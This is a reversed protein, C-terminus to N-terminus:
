LIQLKRFIGFRSIGQGSFVIQLEGSWQQTGCNWLLQARVWFQSQTYNWSEINWTTPTCGFSSLLAETLDETERPNELALAQIVNGKAQPLGLTLAHLTLNLNPMDLSRMNEQLSSFIQYPWRAAAENMQLGDRLLVSLCLSLIQGFKHPTGSIYLDQSDIHLTRGSLKTSGSWPTKLELRSLDIRQSLQILDNKQSQNMGCYSSSTTCIKIIAPLQGVISYAKMEALGGGTRGVRINANAVIGTFAALLILIKKM